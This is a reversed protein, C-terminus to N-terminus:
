RLHRQGMLLGDVDVRERRGCWTCAGHHVAAQHRTGVLVRGDPAIDQVDLSGPASMVTRVNGSLTAAFIAHDTGASKGGGGSASFWVEDSGATWHVGFIDEWGPSIVTRKGQLDIM